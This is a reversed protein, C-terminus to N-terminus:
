LFVIRFLARRHEPQYFLGKKGLQQLLSGGQEEQTTSLHLNIQSILRPVSVPNPRRTSGGGAFLCRQTKNQRVREGLAGRGPGTWPPGPRGWRHPGPRGPALLSPPAPQEGWRGEGCCAACRSISFIINLVPVVTGADRTSEPRVSASSLARKRGRSGLNSWGKVPFGTPFPTAVSGTGAGRPGHPSCFSQAM